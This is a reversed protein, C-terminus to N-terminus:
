QQSESSPPPPPSDIPTQAVPVAVGKESFMLWFVVASLIFLVVSLWYAPQYELKIINQGSMQLQANGDMSIKLLILFITGLASAIVCVLAFIKKRIFGLILGVVAALFAFLAMPESNIERKEKIQESNTQGMMNQGFMDSQSYDTGTILQFGTISMITQGSCSLNVFPLMFLIIIVIYFGPSFKKLLEM